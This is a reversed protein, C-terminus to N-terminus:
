FLELLNQRRCRNDASYFRQQKAALFNQYYESRGVFGDVEIFEFPKYYLTATANTLSPTTALFGSITWPGSVYGYEGSLFLRDPALGGGVRLYLLKGGDKSTEPEKSKTPVSEASSEPVPELSPVTSQSESKAHALNSSCLIFLVGLCVKLVPRLTM